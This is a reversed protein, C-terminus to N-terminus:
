EWEEAKGGGIKGEQTWYGEVGGVRCDIAGEPNESERVKRM